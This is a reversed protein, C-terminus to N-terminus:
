LSLVANLFTHPLRGADSGVFQLIAGLAFPVPVLWVAAPLPGTGFVSRGIGTEVIAGFGLPM